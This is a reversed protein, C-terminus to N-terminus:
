SKSPIFDAAKSKADQMAVQAANHGSLGSVGGGPHNSPGCMYLGEIPTRYSSWGPFPRLGLSQDITSSGGGPDGNVVNPNIQEIDQPSLVVRKLIIRSANPAYDCLREICRDAFKEKEEATWARGRVFVPARVFNWLIHKEKPARSSDYSTTNDITMFPNVPPEGIVCDNYARSVDDLSEGIQVLGSTRAPKAKYDLWADLAAHIMVQSVKSYRFHRVKKVFDSPLIDEGVLDFFLSKPEVNAIVGKKCEYTKGSSTTVGKARGERVLIKDVAEGSVIMCGAHVLISKELAKVLSQMGGIPVGAGRDQLLGVFVLVLIASGADEPSLPVHNSGWISLFAKVEESEFNEEIWERASMYSFQLFDLGTDSEELTSMMESFPLPPSSLSGLIIEKSELYYNFVQRFKRADKESFQTISKTTLDLNRYITVARGSKFPTSAVPDPNVVRLGFSELNLEEQISSARWINLSTAFIDHKFDPLTIEATVAGGGLANQKELVLVSYGAKSLYAAACLGNTGGGVVIYDLQNTTM